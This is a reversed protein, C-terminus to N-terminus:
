EDDSPKAKAPKAKVKSPHDQWGAPVSDADDFVAAQGDPGYFWSPFTTEAM